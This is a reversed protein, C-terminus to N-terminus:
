ATIYETQDKHFLVYTKKCYRFVQRGKADLQPSKYEFYPRPYKKSSELKLGRNGVKVKRGKDLWCKYTGFDSASRVRYGKKDFENKIINFDDVIFKEYTVQQKMIGRKIRNIDIRIYIDPHTEYSFSANNMVRVRVQM